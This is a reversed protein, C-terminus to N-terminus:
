RKAAVRAETEGFRVVALVARHDSPWPTVVVDVGPAKEGVVAASAVGLGPGRAFVFDIRDHHEQEGPLVAWTDGPMAIEDPHVARFADTFGLAEIRRTTPWNVPLPHRGLAAARATWDRFSPENFDGTIIIPQDPLAELEGQLLDIVRGRARSAAAEAENATTLFPADEYAIRMLQYPQYPADKLHLNFLTIDRGGVDIRVGLGSTTQGTIPFRSLVANLGHLDPATQEHWHYGLARGIERTLSASNDACSETVCGEGLRHVEQLGIIDAGTARIATVTEVLTKGHHLGGGWINFSLVKIAPDALAAVPLAMCSCLFLLIRIVCAEM